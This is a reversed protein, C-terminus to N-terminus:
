SCTWVFEPVALRLQLEFDVLSGVPQDVGILDLDAVPDVLDDGAFGGAARFAM